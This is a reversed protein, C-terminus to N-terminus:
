PGPIFLMVLATLKSPLHIFDSSPQNLIFFGSALAEPKYYKQKILVIVNNSAYDFFNNGSDM